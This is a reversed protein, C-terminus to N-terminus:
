WFSKYRHIYVCRSVLSFPITKVGRYYNKKDLKTTIQSGISCLFTVIEEFHLHWLNLQEFDHADIKGEKRKSKSKPKTM